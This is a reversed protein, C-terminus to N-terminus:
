IEDLAIRDRQLSHFGSRGYGPSEAGTRHRKARQAGFCVLSERDGHILETAAAVASLAAFIWRAEAGIAVAGDLLNCRGAKSHRGLIEYIRRLQLDLDSLTCFGAFASLQGAVLDVRDDSASPM